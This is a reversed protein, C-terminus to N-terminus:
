QQHSSTSRTRQPRGTACTEASIPKERAVARLYSRRQRAAPLPCRAFGTQMVGGDPARGLREVDVYVLEGPRDGRHLRAPGSDPETRGGSGGHPAADQSAPQHGRGARGGSGPRLKKAAQPMVRM